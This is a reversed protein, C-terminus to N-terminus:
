GFVAEALALWFLTTVAAAATGLTMATSALRFGTNFRSAILWSNIGAPLSASAVVIKATLPPLDLLLAMVLAVAPMVLLKVGALLIAPMIQGSVGFRVFGMGVSILALPVAVSALADVLRLGVAPLPLGSLRLALGCAIGIILPNQLLQRFFRSVLRGIGVPDSVLGDARVAWEFLIISAAMMVALHVSLQVSLVALGDAGYVGLVFPIGLLLLNSFAGTVGAM